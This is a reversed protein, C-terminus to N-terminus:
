LGVKYFHVHTELRKVWTKAEETAPVDLAFIVREELPIEQKM